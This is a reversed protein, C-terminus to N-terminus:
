VPLRADARREILEYTAALMEPVRDAFWRDTAPQIGSSIASRTSEVLDELRTGEAVIGLRAIRVISDAGSDPYVVPTLGLAQAEGIVWPAGERKSPHLLVAGEAMLRLTEFRDQKGVLEVRDSVGLERALDHLEGALPGGGVIRLRVFEPLEALVRISHDFRKRSILRGVSLLLSSDRGGVSQRAQEIEDRDLLINPEIRHPVGWRSWQDAVNENQALGLEVGQLNMRAVRLRLKTAVRTLLSGDAQISSSGAPGFVRLVGRGVLWEFTPLNDTAFTLHHVIAGRHSRAIAKRVQWVAHLQWAVYAARVRDRKTAAVLFRPLSVAMFRM